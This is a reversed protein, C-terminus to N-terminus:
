RGDPSTAGSRGSADGRAAERRRRTELVISLLQIDTPTVGSIRGAQGLTLPRVRELKQRSEALLGPVSAYDFDDPIKAHDMRSLQAAARQQRGIYGAYKIETEVCRIDEGDLPMEPPSFSAILEYSM